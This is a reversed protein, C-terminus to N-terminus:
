FSVGTGFSLSDLSPPLTLHLSVSCVSPIIGLGLIYCRESWSRCFCTQEAQPPSGQQNARIMQSHTIEGVDGHGIRLFFMSSLFLFHYDNGQLFCPFMFVDHFVIPQWTAFQVGSVKPKSPQTSVNTFLDIWFCQSMCFVVSQKPIRWTSIDHESTSWLWLSILYLIHWMEQDINLWVLERRKNLNGDIPLLLRIRKGLKLVLWATKVFM